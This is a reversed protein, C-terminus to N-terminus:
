AEQNDIRRSEDNELVELFLEEQRQAQWQWFQKGDVSPVRQARAWTILPTPKKSYPVDIVKQPANIHLLTLLDENRMGVPTCNILLDFKRHPLAEQSIGRCPYENCLAQRRFKNRAALYLHPFHFASRIATEAVGGSGYILISDSPQVDLEVFARAFADADTNYVKNHQPIICNAVRLSGSSVYALRHKFPMSCSFGYVSFHFNSWEMWHLFENFNEVPFPMYVADIGRKQFLNNYHAPGLSGNVQPGGIVGGIATQTTRSLLNYQTAETESLQGSATEHGDLGVYTGISGLFPYLIRSIKGLRGMGVVLTPKNSQRIYYPLKILDSYSNIPLALKLIRAKLRNSLFLVYELKKLNIREDTEHYSLILNEAPLMDDPYQMIECDVLCNCHEIAHQYIRMKEHYDISHVGGEAPDRLTLITKEDVLEFPFELPNPSFDLRFEKWWGTKSKGHHHVFDRSLFPISRIIM